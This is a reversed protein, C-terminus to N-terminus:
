GPMLADEANVSSFETTRSYCIHSVSRLPSLDSSTSPPQVGEKDTENV